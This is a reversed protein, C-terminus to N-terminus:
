EDEMIEFSRHLTDFDIEFIKRQINELTRHARPSHGIGSASSEASNNKANKKKQFFWM